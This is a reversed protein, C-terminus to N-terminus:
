RTKRLRFIVKGAIAITKQFRKREIRRPWCGQEILLGRRPVVEYARHVGHGLTGALLLEIGANRQAHGHPMQVRIKAHRWAILSTGRVPRLEPQLAGDGRLISALQCAAAERGDNEAPHDVDIRVFIRRVFDEGHMVVHVLRQPSDRAAIQGTAVRRITKRGTFISM